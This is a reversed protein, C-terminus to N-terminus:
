KEKKYRKIQEFIYSFLFSFLSSLGLLFSKGDLYWAVLILALLLFIWKGFLLLFALARRKRVFILKLSYFFLGVYLYSFVLATFFSLKSLEFVFVLICLLFVYLAQFVFSFSSM